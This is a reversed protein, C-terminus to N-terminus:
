LELEISSILTNYWIEKKNILRSIKEIYAAQSLLLM